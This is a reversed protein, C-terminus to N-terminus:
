GNRAGLWQFIVKLSASAVIAVLDNQHCIEIDDIVELSIDSGKERSEAVLTHITENKQNVLVLTRMEPRHLPPMRLVQIEDYLTPSLQTGMIETLRPSDLMNGLARNHNSQMVAWQELLNAGTLIPNWLVLDSIDKRKIIAQLALTAGLRIGIVSIQNCRSLQKIEDIACEVDVLWQVLTASEDKGASDGTGFYDFRLVHFGARALQAALQRLSRHSYYYEDGIAPCLLVAGRSKSQVAPLHYCGFLYQDGNRFYLPRILELAPPATRKALTTM